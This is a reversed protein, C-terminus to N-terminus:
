SHQHITQHQQEAENVQELAEAVSLAQQQQREREERIPAQADEHHFQETGGKAALEEQNVVWLKYPPSGDTDYETPDTRGFAALASLAAQVDPEEPINPPATHNHNTVVQPRPLSSISLLKM